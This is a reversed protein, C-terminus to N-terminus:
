LPVGLQFKAGLRGRYRAAAVILSLESLRHYGLSFLRDAVVAQERTQCSSMVRCLHWAIDTQTM